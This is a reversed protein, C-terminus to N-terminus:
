IFMQLYKKPKYLKVFNRVFQKRFIQFIITAQMHLSLDHRIKACSNSQCTAKCRTVVFVPFLCFPLCVFKLIVFVYVCWFASSFLKVFLFILFYLFVWAHQNLISLFLFIAFVFFFSSLSPLNKCFSSSVQLCLPQYHKKITLAFFSVMLESLSLCVSLCLFSIVPSFHTILDGNKHM